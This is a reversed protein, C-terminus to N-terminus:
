PMMVSDLKVYEVSNDQNIKYLLIAGGGSLPGINDFGFTVINNRISFDFITFIGRRNGESYKKHLEAISSDTDLDDPISSGMPRCDKNEKLDKLINRFVNENAVATQFFDATEFM